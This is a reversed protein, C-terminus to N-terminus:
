GHRFWGGRNTESVLQPFTEKCDRSDHNGENGIADQLNTQNEQMADRQLVAIEM